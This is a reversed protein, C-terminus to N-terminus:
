SRQEVGLGGHALGAGLVATHFLEVAADYTLSELRVGPVLSRGKQQAVARFDAWPSM